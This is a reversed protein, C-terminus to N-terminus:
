MSCSFSEFKVFKSIPLKHLHSYGFPLLNASECDVWIKPDDKSNRLFKLNLLRGVVTVVVAYSIVGPGLINFTELIMNKRFDFFGLKPQM